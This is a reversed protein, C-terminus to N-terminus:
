KEGVSIPLGDPRRESREREKWIVAPLLRHLRGYLRGRLHRRQDVRGRARHLGVPEDVFVHLSVVAHLGDPLLARAPPWRETCFVKQRNNGRQTVHHPVRPLVIRALRPM